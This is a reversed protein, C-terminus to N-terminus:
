ALAFLIEAVLVYRLTSPKTFHDRLEYFLSRGNRLLLFLSFAALVLFCITVLLRDFQAIKLMAVTYALWGALMLGLPKSLTYGRDPLARLLVAAVPVSALGLLQLAIWWVIVDGM